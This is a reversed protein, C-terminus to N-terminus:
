RGKARHRFDFEIMDFDDHPVIAVGHITGFGTRPNLGLKSLVADGARVVRLEARSSDSSARVCKILEQLEAANWDEVNLSFKSDSAAADVKKVGAETVDKPSVRHNTM